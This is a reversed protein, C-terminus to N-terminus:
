EEERRKKNRLKERLELLSRSIGVSYIHPNMFRRHESPLNDLRSRVREAIAGPTKKAGLANGKEMVKKTLKERRFESIDRSKGQEYPHHITDFGKEEDLAIGDAMFKGQDDMFRFISKKGPLNSKKVNESVKLTPKGNVMSIKYVGDLAGAGKGTTLATGVGFADIPASQKKLSEIVYEDLQNSAIIHVYELGAWDLMERAKKSLYALDGSDLRIGLLKKGREELELGVKIANPIGSKLSDYTDVLLICHDPFIESYTRFADLEEDFSQVWSHAMTGSSELGFHFASFVNSTQDVGGLVAARSAQIGGYGQARRLGFDVVLSDGAVQRIRAAKTAILSNFNLVNLLMTEILQTEIINGEVRLCPEDPFVVEGEEVSYLDAHFRFKKLYSVFDSDFGISSLYSCAAGNFRFNQLLDLLEELGAFIVFGGDYPNKRFFYDFIAPTDKMGNKFYGQAMTLEYHDTYLGTHQNLKQVM